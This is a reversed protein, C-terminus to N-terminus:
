RRFNQCKLLHFYNVFLEVNLQFYTKLADCKAFREVDEFVHLGYCGDKGRNCSRGDSYRNGITM